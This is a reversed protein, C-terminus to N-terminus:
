PRFSYCQFNMQMDFSHTRMFNHQLADFYSIFICGAIFTMPFLHTTHHSWKSEVLGLYIPKHARSLLMSAFVNIAMEIFQFDFMHVISVHTAQVM